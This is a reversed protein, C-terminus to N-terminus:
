QKNGQICQTYQVNTQRHTHTHTHTNQQSQRLIFSGYGEPHFNLLHLKIVGLLKLYVCHRRAAGNLRLNNYCALALARITQQEGVMRLVHFSLKNNVVVVRSATRAGALHRFSVHVETTCYM